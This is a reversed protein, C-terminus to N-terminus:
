SRQIEATSFSQSEIKVVTVVMNFGAFKLSSCVSYVYKRSHNMEYGIGFDKFIIIDVGNQANTRSM